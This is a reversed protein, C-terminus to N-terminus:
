FLCRARITGDVARLDALLDAEEVPGDIDIVVYGVEPDTQLYQASINLKRGSFVENVRSLAGPVNRHIHLFRTGGGKVPLSVQVFNVAGVTSGVDSYLMLKEAVETGINAQAEETSGGVHPTLIVNDMGCLPSEFRDTTGAPERPFVDVAAGTLHGSRLAAALAEIEVVSGRSANVLMSGPKMLGIERAGIMHRTQPTEPVHLTVVDADKLLDDLTACARANGIVLKREIDYFRVQMGLAEALISLQSGIHGYGVIGLIKGRAEFCHTATKPWGGRHVALSKQHIGRLLMIVEGLVMEAVSRTNSYPANFVPVGRLRSATLGVQDTGICYCGIAFLRRCRELVRETLKTRSRIGVIHANAIQAILEDEDLTKASTTINTYGRARFAEAASPHIGELLVISIRDRSFSLRTV